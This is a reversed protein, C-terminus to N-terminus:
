SKAEAAREATFPLARCTSCAPVRLEGTMRRSTETVQVSADLELSGAGDCRDLSPSAGKRRTAIGRVQLRDLEAGLETSSVDGLKITLQKGSQSVVMTPEAGGLELGLCPLSELTSVNSTILWRGGLSPPPKLDRGLRLVGVLAAFPAAVLLLYLALARVPSTTTPPTGSSTTAPM